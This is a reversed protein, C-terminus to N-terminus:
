FLNLRFLAQRLFMQGITLVLFVLAALVYSGVTASLLNAIGVKIFLKILKLEKNLLYIFVTEFLIVIIEYFIISLLQNSKFSFFYFIPWSILNALLVSLIQRRKRLGLLFLVLAEFSVNVGTIIILFGWFGSMFKEFNSPIYMDAFVRVPKLLVM